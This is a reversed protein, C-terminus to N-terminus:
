ISSAIRRLRACIQGRKEVKERRDLSILCARLEPTETVGCEPWPTTAIGPTRLSCPANGARSIPGVRSSTSSSRCSTPHPQGLAHRHVTQKPYSPVVPDPRGLLLAPAGARGYREQRLREAGFLLLFPFKRAVRKAPRAKWVLTGLWGMVTSAKGTATFDPAHLVLAQFDESRPVEIEGVVWQLGTEGDCYHILDPTERSGPLITKDSLV